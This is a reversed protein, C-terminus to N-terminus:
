FCIITKHMNLLLIKLSKLSLIKFSEDLYTLHFHTKQRSLPSKRVNGYYSKPEKSGVIMLLYNMKEICIMHKPRAYRRWM